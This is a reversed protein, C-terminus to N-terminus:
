IGARKQPTPSSYPKIKPSWLRWLIFPTSFGPQEQSTYNRIQLTYHIMLIKTSPTMFIQHAKKKQQACLMSTSSIKQLTVCMQPVKKMIETKRHAFRIKIIKRCICYCINESHPFYLVSRHLTAFIHESKQTQRKYFLSLQSIESYIVYLM